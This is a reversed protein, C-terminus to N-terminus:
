SPYKHSLRLALERIEQVKVLQKLWIDPIGQEKYLIGALGGVVAGTTDTDGGLNVAKLVTESYGNSNLLCWISAELTHLVYGSSYIEAEEFEYIPKIEYDGIPNM